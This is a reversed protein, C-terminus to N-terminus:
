TMARMERKAGADSRRMMVAVIAAAAAVAILALWFVPGERRRRRLPSMLPPQGVGLSAIPELAVPRHLETGGVRVVPTVALLPGPHTPRASGGRRVNLQGVSRRVTSVGTVAGRRTEYVLVAIALFALFQLQDIM